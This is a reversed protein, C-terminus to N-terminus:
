IRREYKQFCPAYRGLLKTQAPAQKHRPLRFAFDIAQLAAGRHVHPGNSTAGAKQVTLGPQPGEGDMHQTPVDQPERAGSM